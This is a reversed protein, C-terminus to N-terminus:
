ARIPEICVHISAQPYYFFETQVVRCHVNTTTTNRTQKGVPHIHLGYTNWVKEPIFYYYAYEKHSIQTKTCMKSITVVTRLM